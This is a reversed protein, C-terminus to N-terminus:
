GGNKSLRHVQKMTGFSCFITKLPERNILAEIQRAVAPCALGSTDLMISCLRRYRETRRKYLASFLQQAESEQTSPLSQLFAPYSGTQRADQTLRAFLEAEKAYLFVRQPIAAILAAAERNDCIGGGTAIVAFVKGYTVEGTRDAQIANDTEATGAPTCGGVTKLADPPIIKKRAGAVGSDINRADANSVVGCCERLAAAEATHLAQLGFRRYLQRPTIGTRLCIINDTDYFPCCLREALLRGVTTKGARSLGLLMVPVAM